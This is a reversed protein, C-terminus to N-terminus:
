QHGACMVHGGTNAGLYTVKLDPATGTVGIVFNTFRDVPTNTLYAYYAMAAFQSDAPLQCHEGSWYGTSWGPSRQCWGSDTMYKMAKGGALACAAPTDGSAFSAAFAAAVADPTSPAPPTTTVPDAAGGCAALTLLLAAIPLTHRIKM